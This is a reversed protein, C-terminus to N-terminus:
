VSIHVTYESINKKEAIFQIIDLLLGTIGNVADDILICLQLFVLLPFFVLLLTILNRQILCKSYQM